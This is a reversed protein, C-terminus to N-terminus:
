EDLETCMGNGVAESDQNWAWGSLKDGCIALPQWIVVQDADFRDMGTDGDIALLFCQDIM